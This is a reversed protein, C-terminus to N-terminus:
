QIYWYKHIRWNKEGTHYKYITQIAHIHHIKTHNFYGLIHTSIKQKNQAHKTYNNWILRHLEKFKSKNSEHYHSWYTWRPHQHNDKRYIDNINHFFFDWFKRQTTKLHSIQLFKKSYHWFQLLVLWIESTLWKHKLKTTIKIKRPTLRGVISIPHLAFETLFIVWVCVLTSILM